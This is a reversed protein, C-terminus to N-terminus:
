MLASIEDTFAHACSVTEETMKATMLKNIFYIVGHRNSSQYRPQIARAREYKLLHTLALSQRLM